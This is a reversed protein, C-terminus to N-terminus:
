KWQYGRLGEPYSRKGYRQSFTGTDARKFKEKLNHPLDIENIIDRKSLIVTHEVANQLERVNGPWDHEMFIEMVGSSFGAIHKKNAISHIELFHDSLLPIDDKRDRLPPVMLPIVNLRYYLDERFRGDMMEKNLNRNTAAIVRVDVHITKEGGVREFNKEQL